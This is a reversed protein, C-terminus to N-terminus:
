QKWFSSTKKKMTINYHIFLTYICIYHFGILEADRIKEQLLEKERIAPDPPRNKAEEKEKEEAEILKM